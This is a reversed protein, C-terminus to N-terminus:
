EGGKKKVKPELKELIRIVARPRPVNRGTEWRSVTSPGTGILNAFDLQSMGLGDRIAKIRQPTWGSM